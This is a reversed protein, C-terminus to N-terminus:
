MRAQPWTPHNCFFVFSDFQQLGVSAAENTCAAGSDLPWSELIDKFLAAHNRLKLSFRAVVPNLVSLSHSVRQVCYNNGANWVVFERLGTCTATFFDVSQWLHTPVSAVFVADVL